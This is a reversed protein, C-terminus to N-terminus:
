TGTLRPSSLTQTINKYPCKSGLQQNARPLISSQPDSSESQGAMFGRPGQAYWSLNHTVQLWANENVLASPRRTPSSCGQFLFNQKLFVHVTIVVLKLDGGKPFYRAEVPTYFRAKISRAKKTKSPRQSLFVRSLAM